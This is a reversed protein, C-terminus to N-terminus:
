NPKAMIAEVLSPENYEIFCLRIGCCDEPNFIAEKLNGMKVDAILRYGKLRMEEKAEDLSPVKYHINRMGEKQVPPISEILEMFGRRDIAFKIRTKEFALDSAETTTKQGTLEGFNHFTTGLIDSFKKIAEDLNKVDVALIEIKEVNM